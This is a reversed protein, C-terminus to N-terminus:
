YPFYKTAYTRLSFREFSEPSISPVRISLYIVHDQGTVKLRPLYLRLVFTLGLVGSSVNAHDKIPSHQAYAILVCDEDQNYVVTQCLLLSCELPM